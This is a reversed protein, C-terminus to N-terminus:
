VYASGKRLVEETECDFVVREGQQEDDILWVTAGHGQVLGDRCMDQARSLADEWGEAYLGDITWTVTFPREPM